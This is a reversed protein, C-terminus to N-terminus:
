TYNVDTEDIFQSKLLREDHNSLIGVRINNLLNILAQYSRQRMVETLEAIKFM